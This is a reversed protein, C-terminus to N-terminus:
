EVRLELEGLFPTSAAVRHEIASVTRAYDIPHPRAASTTQLLALRDHLEVRDSPDLDVFRVGTCYGPDGERWGEIVRAVEAVVVVYPGLWPMRFTLLLEEGARMEADCALLAGRTSLDLLREGVVDFRGWHVARCPISIRRRAGARRAHLLDLM